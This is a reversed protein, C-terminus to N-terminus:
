ADDPPQANSGGARFEANMGQRAHLIGDDDREFCVVAYRRGQELDAAFATGEGPPRTNTAALPTVSRREDGALQKEIPPLDEPLPILTVRHRQTGANHVRFVARGAPVPGDVDIADDRLVVEIEPVSPPWRDDGDASGQLACGAALFTVAMIAAPLTALRAWHSRDNCPRNSTTTM